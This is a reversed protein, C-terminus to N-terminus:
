VDCVNVCDIKSGYEGHRTLRNQLMVLTLVWKLLGPLAKKTFSHYGARGSTALNLM